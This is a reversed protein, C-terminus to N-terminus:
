KNQNTSFKELAYIIGMSTFFLLIAISTELNISEPMYWIYDIVKTKGDIVISKGIKKWPWIVLLSGVIFGTLMSLTQDKYKKLLWAIIHSFALLGFISGLGFLVLLNYNLEIIADVLLLEYNGLLILIFSGSLGPLMMGSIGIIGCMFVFFANSNENGPNMLSITTAVMISIFCIILNLTSWKKIRKAVYYISALILGFFFSWILIPHHFFLYKFIKAISFMSVLSGFFITVLFYFNTYKIFDVYKFKLLLKLAHKDFSKLSNILPEYIRTILAITGGSVGPIVNAIGMGIGKLFLIFYYKLM